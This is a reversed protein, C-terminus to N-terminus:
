GSERERKKSQKAREKHKKRKRHQKNKCKEARKKDSKKREKKAREKVPQEKAQETKIHINCNNLYLSSYNLKKVVNILRLDHESIFVPSNWLKHDTLNQLSFFFNYIYFFNNIYELLM